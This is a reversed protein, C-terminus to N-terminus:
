DLVSFERKKQAGIVYYDEMNVMKQYERGVPCYTHSINTVQVLKFSVLLDGTVLAELANPSTVLLDHTKSMNRLYVATARPTISPM